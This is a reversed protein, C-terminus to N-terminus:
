TKGERPLNAYWGDSNDINSSGADAPPRAAYMQAAQAGNTGRLQGLRRRLRGDLFSRYRSDWFAQDGPAASGMKRRLEDLAEGAEDDTLTLKEWYGRITQGPRYADM